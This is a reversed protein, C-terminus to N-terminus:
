RKFASPFSAKLNRHNLQVSPTPRSREKTPSKFALVEDEGEVPRKRTVEKRPNEMYVPFKNFPGKLGAKPPMSPKFPAENEFHKPSAKPSRAPIPVDEGRIAQESNFVGHVKARESFPKEQLKSLHYKIEAQQVKKPYNYDDALHAPFEEFTTKKAVKGTKPPNTLFNRPGVIVGGDEDRYNKKVEHRDTMHDFASKQPNEPVTKAPRFARDHGAKLHGDKVESRMM